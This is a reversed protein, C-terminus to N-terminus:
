GGIGIARDIMFDRHKTHCSRTALGDGGKESVSAMVGGQPRNPLQMAVVGPKSLLEQLFFFGLSGCKKQHSTTAVLVGFGTTIQLVGV